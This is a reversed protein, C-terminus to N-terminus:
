THMIQMKSDGCSVEVNLKDISFGYANIIAQIVRARKEEYTM